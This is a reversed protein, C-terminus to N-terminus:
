RLKSWLFTYALAQMFAVQENNSAAGHGGEINEYYLVKHGQAKLMAAFKRAHGPHVRDDRTSTTILIPPYVKEKRLNQYPSYKSIYAWESPKDPDGYEDMWSAGALLHNYRKMDLLPSGCHVAGFLDPRQTLMVGMLLGGNSRGDIGLHKPSTIKRMALDEAVAIFDDYARQRNEKRAANHWSPGFEGGGRINALVYVGGREMWASGSIASYQPLLSHEFGGYSYLLTPNTGDLKLGKKSVMFYPVRTGDKSKADFQQIELGDTKFFAPLHKLAELGPQGATGLYLTSPTLFNTITAFFADSEDSDVGSISVTGFSPAEMKERQWKGDKQSLLYPRSNVNDLETLILYNKTDTLSELSKRETPEFLVDFTRDGKLFAEFDESLLTGSKYTKGGVIWDSRLRLLLNKGFTYLLADAPKEIQVLKGDRRLYIDQTFFSPRNSVFEYTQGHDHVVYGNAGVDAKKGEFVTKADALPTGRKWEKVIRPYGSDTMSGAGFNTGVFVSDRDRWAVDSKAEPLKFGDKVFEKKTLDFERIVSADTGGRSLEVLARDYDHYLIQYGSWVWNEKEDKALKDLDIVAEWEPKEKKYEELTTRRWLGRVHKDDRWFNYYFKGQKSIYPIKDKSDLIARLKNKIPAFDKSAELIKTSVANEGRVWDLAKKGEVDELWLYPDKVDTSSKSAKGAMAEKAPNTEKSQKVEVGAAPVAANTSMCLLLPLFVPVASHRKFSYTMTTIEKSNEIIEDKTGLAPSGGASGPRHMADGRLETAEWEYLIQRGTAADM